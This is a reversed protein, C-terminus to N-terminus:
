ADDGDMKTLRPPQGHMEDFATQTPQYRTLHDHLALVKGVALAVQSDSLRDVADGTCRAGVQSDMLRLLLDFDARAERPIEKRKIGLVAPGCALALRERQTGSGCLHAIAKSFERWAFSM